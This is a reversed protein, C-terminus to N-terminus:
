QRCAGMFAFLVMPICGIDLLLFLWAWRSVWLTGDITLGIFLM